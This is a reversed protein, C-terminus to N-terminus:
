ETLLDKVIESVMKNDAKGSLQKAAIGMVKGMDKISSAGSENIIKSVIEKIQDPAMQEPLYELLIEAEKVEQEYLEERNQEKYIAASDQRQKILKKIIQLEKETSISKDSSETSAILFASKAARLATLRIKDKALMAKKIDSNVKELISM